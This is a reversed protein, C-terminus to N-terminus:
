GRIIVAFKEDACTVIDNNKLEHENYDMLRKGNIKTYNTSHNDSVFLKKGRIRFVAHVRTVAPNDLIFYDCLEPKRGLVFKQTELPIMESTKLRKLAFRVDARLGDEESGALCLKLCRFNVFEAFFGSFGDFQRFNIKPVKSLLKEMAPSFAIDDLLVAVFERQRMVARNFETRCRHSLMFSDSIFLVAASCGIFRDEATETKAGSDYWVRYGKEYLMSATLGAINEDGPGASFYIYSENGLYAETFM